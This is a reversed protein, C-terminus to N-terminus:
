HRPSTFLLGQRSSNLPGMPEGALLPRGLAFGQILDAGSALCYEREAATEVGEAIVLAGIRHGLDVMGQYVNQKHADEDIGTVFFRDIKVYAPKVRVLTQLGAYGTGFDDLAYDVAFSDDDDPFYPFQESIELVLRDLPVGTRELVGRLSAKSWGPQSFVRNDVNSFLRVEPAVPLLSFLQLAKERLASEFEVLQRDTAALDFVDKIARFGAERFGRLLAEVAVLSEDECSVIPQFAFTLREVTDTWFRDM